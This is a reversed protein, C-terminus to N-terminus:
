QIFLNPLNHVTKATKMLYKCLFASELSCLKKRSPHAHTNAYIHMHNGYVKESVNTKNRM